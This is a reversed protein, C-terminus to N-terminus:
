ARGQYFSYPNIMGPMPRGFGTQMPQALMFPQGANAFTPAMGMGGGYAMPNPMGSMPMPQGLGPVGTQMGAAGRPTTDTGDKPKNQDANQTNSQQTQDPQQGGGGSMAGMAQGAAPGAVSSIFPTWNGTGIGVGLGILPSLWGKSNGQQAPAMQVVNSQVPVPM